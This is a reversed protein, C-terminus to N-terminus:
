DENILYIEVNVLQNYKSPNAGEQMMRCCELPSLFTNNYCKTLIAKEQKTLQDYTFNFNTQPTATESYM